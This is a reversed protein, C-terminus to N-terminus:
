LAGLGNVERSLEASVDGCNKKCGILLSYEIAVQEELNKNKTWNRRINRVDSNTELKSRKSDSQMYVTCPSQWTVGSKLNWM